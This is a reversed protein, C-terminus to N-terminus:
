FTIRTSDRNTKLCCEQQYLIDRRYEQLTQGPSMIEGEGREKEGEGGGRERRGEREREGEGGESEGEGERGGEREGTRNGNLSCM